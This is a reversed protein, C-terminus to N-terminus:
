KKQKRLVQDQHHALIAQLENFSDALLQSQELIIRTEEPFFNADPEAKAIYEILLLVATLPQVVECTKQQLLELTAMLEEKTIDTIDAVGKVKGTRDAIKPSGEYDPEPLGKLDGIM